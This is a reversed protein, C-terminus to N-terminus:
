PRRTLTVQSPDFTYADKEDFYGCLFATLPLGMRLSLMLAYLFVQMAATREAAAHPKYDWVGLKADDERRLVDIHGTLPEHTGLLRGYEVFDWAEIWVPVECAITRPDHELFYKQLNEHRSSVSDASRSDAALRIIDRRRTPNLAIEFGLRCKCARSARFKSGSFLHNPCDAFLAHLFDAAPGPLEATRATALRYRYYGPSHPFSHVRVDAIKRRRSPIFFGHDELRFDHVDRTYRGCLIDGITARASGERRQPWLWEKIADRVSESRSSDIAICLYEKPGGDGNPCALVLDFITTSFDEGLSQCLSAAFARAPGRDTPLLLLNPYAM